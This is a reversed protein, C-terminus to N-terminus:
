QTEELLWDFPGLDLKTGYQQLSQRLERLAARNRKAEDAETKPSKGDLIDIGLRLFARLYSIRDLLYLIYSRSIRYTTEDYENKKSRVYRTSEFSFSEDNHESFVLNGHIIHRRSSWIEEFLYGISNLEIRDDADGCTRLNQNEIYANVLFDIKREFSFPFSKTRKVLPSRLKAYRFIFRDLLYEMDACEVTFYGLAAYLKTDAEDLDLADRPTRMSVQIPSAEVPM